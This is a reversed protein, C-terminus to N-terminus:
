RGAPQNAGDHHVNINITPNCAPNPFAVSDCPMGNNPFLPNSVPNNGWGYDPNCEDDGAWRM